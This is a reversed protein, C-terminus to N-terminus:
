VVGHHVLGNTANKLIKRFSARECLHIEKRQERKEAKHELVKEKRTPKPGCNHRGKRGQRQLIEEGEHVIQRMGQNVSTDKGKYWDRRSVTGKRGNRRGRGKIDTIGTGQRTKSHDM